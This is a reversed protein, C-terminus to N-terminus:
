LFDQPKEADHFLSVMQDHDTSKYAKLEEESRFCLISAYRQKESSEDALVLKQKKANASYDSLVANFVGLLAPLDKQVGFLEIHTTAEFEFFIPHGISEEINKGSESFDWNGDISNIIQKERTPTKNILNQYLQEVICITEFDVDEQPPTFSIGLFEEVKLVKEWFVASSDDFRNPEDGTLSGDLPQGMLFGKGDIFANYIMTSEVIDRITRANKLNFSINLTLHHNGKDLYYKICLPDNKDSEFAGINISNHPVRSVLLKREYKECGVTIQFPEPFPHPYMYLTGSVYKVPNLPNYSMKDIPFEQGNLKIYGEKQLTLPIPKQTNYLYDIVDQRTYKKGLVRKQEDTPKFIFGGISISEADSSIVCNGNKDVVYKVGDPLSKNMYSVLANPVTIQTQPKNKFVRNFDVFM